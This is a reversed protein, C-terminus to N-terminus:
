ARASGRVKQWTTLLNNVERRPRDTMVQTEQIAQPASGHIAAASQLALYYPRGLWRFYDELWWGVPPAGQLRHEPTVILFFGHQRTVRVVQGGLRLLQFKAATASLGTERILDAMPFAVRGAAVRADIFGAAAGPLREQNATEKGM